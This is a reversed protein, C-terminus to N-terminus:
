GVETDCAARLWTINEVPVDAQQLLGARV